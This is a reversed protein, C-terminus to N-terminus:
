NEELGLQERLYTGYAVRANELTYHIDVDFSVNAINMDLYNNSTVNTTNRLVNAAVHNIANKVDFGLMMYYIFNINANYTRINRPSIAFHKKLFSTVKKYHIDHDSENIMDLYDSELRCVNLTGSKGKWIIEGTDNKKNKGSIGVAGISKNISIGNKNNRGIRMSCVDLLMLVRRLNSDLTPDEYILKKLHPLAMHVNWMLKNQHHSWTPNRPSHHRSPSKPHNKRPSHHSPSKPRNKRPSHRSPSKPRNKKRKRNKRPSHNM